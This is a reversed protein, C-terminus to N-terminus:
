AKKGRTQWLLVVEESCFTICISILVSLDFQHWRNWNSPFFFRVLIFGNQNFNVSVQNSFDIPVSHLSRNQKQQKKLCSAAMGHKLSCLQQGHPFSVLGVRRAQKWLQQAVGPLLHSPPTQQCVTKPWIHDWLSIKVSQVHLCQSQYDDARDRWLARSIAWSSPRPELRMTQLTCLCQGHWYLCVPSVLGKWNSKPLPIFCASGVSYQSSDYNVTTHSGEKYLLSNPHSIIIEKGEERLPLLHNLCRIIM